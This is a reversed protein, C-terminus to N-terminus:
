GDITPLPRTLISPEVVRVMGDDVVMKEITISVVATRPIVRESAFPSFYPFQAVIYEVVLQKEADLTFRTIRGFHEGSKTYVPLHLLQNDSIRM